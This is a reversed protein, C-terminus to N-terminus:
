VYKSFIDIICLLFCKKKDFKSIIQIDALDASWVNDKFSSYVEPNEVKTYYKLLKENSM